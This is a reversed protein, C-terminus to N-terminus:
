QYHMSSKGGVQRQVEKVRENHRAVAEARSKAGGRSFAMKLRLYALCDYLLSFPALILLPVITFYELLIRLPLCFLDSVLGM